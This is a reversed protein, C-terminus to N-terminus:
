VSKWPTTYRTIDDAPHAKTRDPTERATIDQQGLNKIWNESSNERAIDRM